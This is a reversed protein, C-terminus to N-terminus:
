SIKGINEVSHAISTAHAKIEEPNDGEVMIRVLPETGSPRLVVRGRDGLASEVHQVTESVLKHNLCDTNISPVNVLFQPCKTMGSCAQSLRQGSLCLANVVQLAAVIGDGTSTLDSCIIHGSTEGGLSWGRTIMEEIVYRDGVKTRILPIQMSQLAKELGFNTMLTGVVGGSMEGKQNRFAAIIYLIEDGDVLRGKEDVMVVRDADGDFAIGLDAKSSIVTDILASPATSGCRNNINLGDPQIGIAEVEVGLERFVKPGIQYAAGHACDIVVKLDSLDSGLRLTNKCFEIYLSAADESRSVRGLFPASVTKLPADILGEIQEELDDLLKRGTSDFFKIGNDEYPNHSASIAIGGDASLIRTLYAIAPTPMPGLMIPDVGAAILGAELSTEFMYGSLRTDKGIVVKVRDSSTRQRVTYGFAWGLKLVFEATICGEGVRGRIGDTGFYKRSM